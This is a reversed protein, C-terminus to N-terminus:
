PRGDRRPEDGRAGDGSETHGPLEALERVLARRQDDLKDVGAQLRDWRRQEGRTLERDGAKDHLERMESELPERRAELEDLENTIVQANRAM